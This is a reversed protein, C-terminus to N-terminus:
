AAPHKEVSAVDAVLGLADGRCLRPCRRPAVPAATAQRRRAGGECSRTRARQRECANAEREILGSRPSCVVQSRSSTSPTRDLCWVSFTVTSPLPGPRSRHQDTPTTPARVSPKPVVDLARLYDLLPALARASTLWTRGEARRARVFQDVVESTVEAVTLGELELWRSLHAMLLLRVSASSSTYGRRSLEGCFGAAYPALAGTVHIRSPPPSAM